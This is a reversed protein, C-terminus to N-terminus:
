PEGVVDLIAPRQDVPRGVVRHDDTVHADVGVLEGVPPLHTRRGRDHGPDVVSCQWPGSVAAAARGVGVWCPGAPAVVPGWLPRGILGSPRKPCRVDAEGTAAEGTVQELGAAVVSRPITRRHPPDGPPRRDHHGDRHDPQDDQPDAIVHVHDRAAGQKAAARDAGGGGGRRHSRCRGSRGGGCRGPARGAGPRGSGGRAACGRASGGVAAGAGRRHRTGGGCRSRAPSGPVPPERQSGDWQGRDRRRRELEHDAGEVDESCAV